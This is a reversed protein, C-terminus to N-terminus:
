LAGEHKREDRNAATMGFASLTEAIRSRMLMETREDLIGSECLVECSVILGAVAQIQSPLLDRPRPEHKRYDRERDCDEATRTRM